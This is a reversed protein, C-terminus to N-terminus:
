LVKATAKSFQLITEKWQKLIYYIIVRTNAAEVKVKGTFIIHQIARSDAYLAKQKSLDDAILKFIKVEDYQKISGNIPQNYFNRGDIEINYNEIKIRPLLYTKFSDVSVQKSEEPNPLLRLLLM